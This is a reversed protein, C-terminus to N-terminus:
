FSICTSRRRLSYNNHQFSRVRTYSQFCPKSPSSLAMPNDVYLAVGITDPFVSSMYETEPYGLEWTEPERPDDETTSFNEFKFSPEGSWWLFELALFLTELRIIMRFDAELDFNTLILLYNM